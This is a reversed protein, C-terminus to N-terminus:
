NGRILGFKCKNSFDRKVPKFFLIKGGFKKNTAIWKVVKEWKKLHNEKLFNFETDRNWSYDVGSKNIDISTRDM